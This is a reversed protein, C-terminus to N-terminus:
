KPVKIDETTTVQFRRFNSYSSAVEFRDERPRAPQRYQEKMEVPVLLKM